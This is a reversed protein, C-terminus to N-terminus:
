GAHRAGVAVRVEGPAPPQRPCIVRLLYFGAEQLPPSQYKPEALDQWSWPFACRNFLALHVSSRRHLSPEVEVALVDDRAAPGYWFGTGPNGYPLILRRVFREGLISRLHLASGLHWNLFRFVGGKKNRIGGLFDQYRAVEPGIPQAPAAVAGDVQVAPCRADPRWSYYRVFVSYTGAPLPLRCWGDSDGGAGTSLTVVERGQRYVSIIWMSASTDATALDIAIGQRVSLPGLHHQAAHPNWRPCVIMTTLLDTGPGQLESWGRWRLTAPAADESQGGSMVQGRLIRRGSAVVILSACAIPLGAVVRLLPAAEWTPAAPGDM